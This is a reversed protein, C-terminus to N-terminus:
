ENEEKGTGNVVMVGGIVAGIGIVNQVSISEQFLFASWLMSWLLALSRNAYAVSLDVRKIIQQWIIAYAGLIAIELGYLAIFPISLFSYGSAYKGAVGSLTYIMVSFQIFLIM